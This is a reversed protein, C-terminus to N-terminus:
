SSVAGELNSDANIDTATSPARLSAQGGLSWSEAQTQMKWMSGYLSCDDLLQEHTGQAILEGAELVVISDADVISQLRHAIVLTTKGNLHRLARQIERENEPDVSATVEDLVLVPADKLLARAIGLRQKEGGSLQTGAEGIPSCGGHPLADIFQAAAHNYSQQLEATTAEPKALRVNDEISGHFLFTHQAVHGITASRQEPSLGRLDLGGVEISGETPDFARVLLQALTSKGAGSPGVVATTTGAALTLTLNKLAAEGHESYRHTVATFKVDVPDEDVISSKGCDQEEADFVKQIRGLALFSKQASGFLFLLKMLPLLIASGLTLFLLLEATEISGQRHLYLGVPLVLMLNGSLVSFFAAYGAMSRKTMEAALDRIAAISGRLRELSSADRNYAKLVVISRLYELMASNASAEASHWREWQEQYGRMALAQILVAIPLLAVSAAALRWDISLLWCLAAIPTLLASALEPLHHALSGELSAVDDVLVKKLDGTAREQFYSTPVRRLKDVLALRAARMFGFAAKHSLVYGSGLLVFRLAVALMGWAALDGVPAANGPTDQLLRGAALAVLAFPVLELLAAGFLLAAGTIVRSAQERLLRGLTPHENKMFNFDSNM